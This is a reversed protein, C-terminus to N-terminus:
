EGATLTIEKHESLELPITIKEEGINIIMEAKELPPIFMGNETHTETQWSSYWQGVTSFSVTQTGSVVKNNKEDTLQYDFTQGDMDKNRCIGTITSIYAKKEKLEQKIQEHQQKILEYHEKGAEQSLLLEEEAKWDKELEQLEKNKEETTMERVVCSIEWDNNSGYLSYPTLNRQENKSITNSSCGSSLSLGLFLCLCFAVCKGSKLVKKGFHISM